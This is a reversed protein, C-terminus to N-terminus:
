TVDTITFPTPPFFHMWGDNWLRWDPFDVKLEGTHPFATDCSRLCLDASNSLDEVHGRFRLSSSVHTFYRLQEFARAGRRARRPGFVMLGATSWCGLLGKVFKSFGLLHQCLLLIKQLFFDLLLEHYGLFISSFVLPTLYHEHITARWTM